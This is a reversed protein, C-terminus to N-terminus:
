NSQTLSRGGTRCFGAIVFIFFIVTFMSAVLGNSTSHPISARNRMQWSNNYVAERGAEALPCAVPSIKKTSMVMERHKLLAM